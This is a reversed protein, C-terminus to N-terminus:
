CAARRSSLLAFSFSFGSIELCVQSQIRTSKVRTNTSTYEDALDSLGPRPRHGSNGRRAYRAQLLPKTPPLSAVGRCAFASRTCELRVNGICRLSSSCDPGLTYGVRANQPPTNQGVVKAQRSAVPLSERPAECSRRAGRLEGRGAVM